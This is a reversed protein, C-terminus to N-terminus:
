TKVHRCIKREWSQNAMGGDWHVVFPEASHDEWVIKTAQGACLKGIANGAEGYAMKKLKLLCDGKLRNLQKVYILVNKLKFIDSYTGNQKM